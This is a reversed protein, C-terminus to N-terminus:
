LMPALNGPWNAFACVRISGVYLQNKQSRLPDNKSNLPSDGVDGVHANKLSEIGGNDSHSAANESTNGLSALSTLRGRIM